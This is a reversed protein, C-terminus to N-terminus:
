LVSTWAQFPARKLASLETRLELVLSKLADTESAQVAAATGVQRCQDEERMKVEFVLKTFPVKSPFLYYTALRTERRLGQGFAECLMGEVKEKEVAGLQVAHLMTDELRAAFVGASQTEAQKLGFFRSLITQATENPGFVSQFKTLIEEVSAGVGLSMLTRSAQGKLGRRIAVQIDTERTQEHRLCEVEYRWLDFATDKTDGSFIPLRPFVTHLRTEPAGGGSVPSDADNSGREM